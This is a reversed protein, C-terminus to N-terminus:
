FNSKAGASTMGRSRLEPVPPVKLQAGNKGAQFFSKATVLVTARSDVLLPQCYMGDAARLLICACILQMPMLSASFPKRAAAMSCVIRPSEAVAEVPMRKMLVTGITITRQTGAGLLALAVLGSESCREM